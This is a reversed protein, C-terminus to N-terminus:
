QAFSLLIVEYQTELTFGMKEATKVSAENESWCDWYPALGHHHCEALFRRAMRTAIGKRHYAPDVAIGIGCCGASVYEATCFGIVADDEIACVGFGDRYFADLDGWMERIEGTVMETNRLDPRQLVSEKILHIDPEPDPLYPQGAYRYVSRPLMQQKVDAFAEVIHNRWAPSGFLIKVGGLRERVAPSLVEDRLFAAAPKMTAPADEGDVFITYQEHVISLSPMVDDNVYVDAHTKGERISQIMYDAPPFAFWGQTSPAQDTKHMSM